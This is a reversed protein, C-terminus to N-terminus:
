KYEKKTLRSALPTEPEPNGPELDARRLWRRLASASRLRVCSAVRVPSVGLAGPWHEQGRAEPDRSRVAWLEGTLQAAVPAGLTRLPCRRGGHVGASTARDCTLSAPPCLPM